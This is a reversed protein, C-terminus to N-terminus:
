RVYRGTVSALLELRDERLSARLGVANVTSGAYEIVVNRDTAAVSTETDFELYDTRITAAPSDAERTTAVVNGSLSVMKGGPLMRGEAANLSWPLEASPEYNVEVDSLRVSGDAPEQVATAAAIRLAIGGDDDTVALRADTVYYGVGLRPTDEVVATPGRVRWLLATSAVALVALGALAPLSRTQLAV